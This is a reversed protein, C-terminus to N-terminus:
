VAAHDENLEELCHVVWKVGNGQTIASAIRTMSQLNRPSTSEILLKPLTQHVAQSDLVVAAGATHLAMAIPIQNEALAVQISPLGLCCREWSTSGAGGIALDSDAMLEAMNSVGVLVVTPWPLDAVQAQVQTRWPAHLGMVITIRLEPPLTCAKLADVVGGTINNKDVGGMTILLHEIRPTQARRMLSQPRLAAFEPRLLAYQPGILMTTSPNLLGGYDQEFRGLNQDLLLDCDHPRDALDDIVMIRKARPRVAKEWRHDLAYHDVVLWDLSESGMSNVLVQLTDAADSAWNTGLWDSHATGNNKFRADKQFTPLSLVQYGRQAILDLLHGSHPRCIFSCQAGRESLANALTLCRMVHGTGVQLSADTRFAIRM